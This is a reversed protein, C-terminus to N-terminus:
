LRGLDNRYLLRDMVETNMLRLGARHLACFWVGKEADSELGLHMYCQYKENFRVIKGGESDSFSCFSTRDNYTSLLPSGAKSCVALSSNQFLNFAIDASKRMGIVYVYRVAGNKDTEDICYWYTNSLMRALTDFQRTNHETTCSQLTDVFKSVCVQYDHCLFEVENYSHAVTYM